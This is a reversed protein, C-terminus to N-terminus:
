EVVVLVDLKHGEEYSSKFPTYKRIINLKGKDLKWLVSCVVTM